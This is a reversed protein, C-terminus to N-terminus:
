KWFKDIYGTVFLILILFPLVYTLYGRLFRPFKLGAGMDVEQIFSNWGWGRRSTEYLCRVICVFLSTSI